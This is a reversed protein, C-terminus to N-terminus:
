TNSSLRHTTPGPSQVTCCCLRAAPPSSINWLSDRAGGDTYASDSQEGVVWCLQAAAVTVIQSCDLSDSVGTSLNSAGARCEWGVQPPWATLRLSFECTMFHAPERSM